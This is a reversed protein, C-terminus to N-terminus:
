PHLAGSLVRRVYLNQTYPEISENNGPRRPLRFVSVRSHSRRSLRPPALASTHVCADVDLVDTEFLRHRTARDRPRVMQERPSGLIQATSATPM